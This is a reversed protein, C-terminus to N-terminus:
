LADLRNLNLIPKGRSVQMQIFNWDLGSAKYWEMAEATNEITVTNVVLSGGPKLRQKCIELIDGMKGASGGIFVSDPDDPIDKLAEPAKGHLVQVQLTGFKEVNQRVNG